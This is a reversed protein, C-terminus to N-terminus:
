NVALHLLDGGEHKEETWGFTKEEGALPEEGTESAGEEDALAKSLIRVELVTSFGNTSFYFQM